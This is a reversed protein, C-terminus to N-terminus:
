LCGTDESRDAVRARLYRDDTGCCGGLIKLRHHRHHRHLALM